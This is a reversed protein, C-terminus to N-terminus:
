IWSMQQPSFLGVLPGHCLAVAVRRMFVNKWGVHIFFLSPAFAGCMGTVHLGARPPRPLAGPQRCGPQSLLSGHSAGLDRELPPSPGQTGGLLGSQDSVEQKPTSVRTAAGPYAPHGHLREHHHWCLTTLVGPDTGSRGPPIPTRFSVTTIYRHHPLLCGRGLPPYLGEGESRAARCCSSFAQSRTVAPYSFPGSVFM